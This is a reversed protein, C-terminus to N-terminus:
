EPWGGEPYCSGVAYAGGGSDWLGGSLTITAGTKRNQVISIMPTGSYRFVSGNQLVINTCPKATPVPTPPPPPPAVIRPVPTPTPEPTPTPLQTATPEPTATPVPTNTPMALQTQLSEVQERLATLENTQGGPDCGQGVLLTLTMLLFLRSHLDWAM